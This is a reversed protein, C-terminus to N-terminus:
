VHNKRVITLGDAISLMCCQVRRDTAIKRNLARLANTSEDQVDPAIVAGNWLVNDVLIVGGPRVLALCQEYYTDYGPKDADIFAMDYTDAQGDAVLNALTEAAPALRLVIKQDVRAQKWYRRAIDTFEASVDCALIHGNAPLALAVCLTSYGTFVGVELTRRAGMLQALMGMFAGQEPAIQMGATPLRATEARLQQLVAPGPTCHQLMYAYLAETMPLCKM